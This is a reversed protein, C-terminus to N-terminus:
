MTVGLTGGSFEILIFVFDGNKVIFIRTRGNCLIDPIMFVGRKTLAQKRYKV